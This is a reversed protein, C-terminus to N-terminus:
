LKQKKSIKKIIDKPDINYTEKEIDAFVPIANWNLIASACASMTWPSLIIEDGPNIDIAGVACVLGSTWSNVTIAHKVKFFHNVNEKM